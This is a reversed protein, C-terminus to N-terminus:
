LGTLMGNRGAFWLLILLVVGAVVITRATQSMPAQFVLYVIGVFLVIAFLLEIM